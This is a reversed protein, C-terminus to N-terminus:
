ITNSLTRPSSAVAGSPPKDPPEGHRAGNQLQLYRLARLARSSEADARHVIVGNTVVLCWLVAVLIATLWLGNKSIRAIEIHPEVSIKM